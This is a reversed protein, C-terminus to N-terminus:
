ETENNLIYVIKNNLDYGKWNGKDNLYEAEFKLIGDEIMNKVKEIEKIM